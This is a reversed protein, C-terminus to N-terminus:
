VERSIFVDGPRIVLWLLISVPWNMLAVLLVVLSARKVRKKADRYVWVLSWIFVCLVGIIGLSLIFYGLAEM